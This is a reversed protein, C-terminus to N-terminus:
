LYLYVVSELRRLWTARTLTGFLKELPHPDFGQLKGNTAGKWLICRGTVLYRISYPIIDPTYWVTLRWRRCKNGLRQTVSFEILVRAEEYVIATSKNRPTVKTEDGTFLNIHHNANQSIHRFGCHGHVLFKTVHSFFIFLRPPPTPTLLNLCYNIFQSPSLPSVSFQGQAVIM